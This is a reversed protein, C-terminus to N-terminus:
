KSLFSDSEILKLSNPLPYPVGPIKGCAHDAFHILNINWDLRNIFTSRLSDCDFGIVKTMM